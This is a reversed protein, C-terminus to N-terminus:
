NEEVGGKNLKGAKYIVTHTEICKKFIEQKDIFDIEGCTSFLFLCLPLEM